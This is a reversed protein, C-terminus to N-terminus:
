ILEELLQKRDRELKFWRASKEARFWTRQRKVLQRTALEIEEALGELGPKVKRGLPSTKQLYHRVQDYGVADLARADPYRALVRATEEIIGGALMAQTRSRIIGELEKPDRDIVLLTFCPDPTSPRESALETPSKGSQELIEWARILRYRDNTGIRLAAQEDRKMLRQYLSENTEQELRARIAPDAAPTEWLGYLLAKLYFGTGGVLLPRRGRSLIDKLATETERVFEGATFPQDPDRIDILHHPVLSLEAPTPKATGIDMGRYVLM